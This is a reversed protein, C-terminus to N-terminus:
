PAVVTIEDSGTISQYTAQVSVTGADVGTVVGATSVTAVATNSSQWTAQSTVDQTTGDSLTAMAAFQSTAGMAPATGTVSVSSVSTPTTTSQGCALVSIALGLTVAISSVLRVQMAVEEQAACRRPGRGGIDRSDCCCDSLIMPASAKERRTKSQKYAQSHLPSAVEQQWGDRVSSWISLLEQERQYKPARLFNHSVTRSPERVRQVTM